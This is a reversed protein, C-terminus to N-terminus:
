QKKNKPNINEKRWKEHQYNDVIILIAGIVIIGLPILCRMRNYGLFSIGLFYM